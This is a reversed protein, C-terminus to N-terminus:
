RSTPGEARVKKVALLADQLDSIWEAQHTGVLRVCWALAESRSRAVGAGILTDLVARERMRLRTMVPVSLTTFLVRQGGCDAGWSVRRAFRHEAEAAVRIRQERTAERFEKVRELCAAAVAAESAGAPLAPPALRGVVLIEEGDVAVEPLGTFWGPPLRAALWGAVERVIPDTEM